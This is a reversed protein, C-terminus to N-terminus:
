ISIDSFFIRRLDSVVNEASCLSYPQSLDGNLVIRNYMEANNYKNYDVVTLYNCLNGNQRIMEQTIDSFRLDATYKEKIYAFPKKEYKSNKSQMRAEFYDNIDFGTKAKKGLEESYDSISNSMGDGILPESKRVEKVLDRIIPIMEEKSKINGSDDVFLLQACLILFTPYVVANIFFLYNIDDGSIPQGGIIAKSINALSDVIRDYSFPIQVMLSLLKINQREKKKYAPDERNLFSLAELAYQIATDLRDIHLADECAWGLLIKRVKEVEKESSATESGLEVAPFNKYIEVTKCIDLLREYTLGGNKSYPGEPLEKDIEFLILPLTTLPSSIRIGDDFPEIVRKLYNVTERYFLHPHQQIIYPNASFGDTKQYRKSLSEAVKKKKAKNEAQDDTGAEKETRDYIGVENKTRDYIKRSASSIAERVEGKGITIVDGKKVKADNCSVDENCLTRLNQFYTRIEDTVEYLIVDEDKRSSVAGILEKPLSSCIVDKVYAMGYKKSPMDSRYLYDVALYLLSVIIQSSCKHLEEKIDTVNHLKYLSELRKHSFINICERECEKWTDINGSITVGQKQSLDRCYFSLLEPMGSFMRKIDASDLSQKHSKEEFLKTLKEIYEKDEQEKYSVARNFLFRIDLWRYDDLVEELTKEIM